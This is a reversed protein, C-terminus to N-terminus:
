VTQKKLHTILINLNIAAKTILYTDFCKFLLGCCTPWNLMIDLQMM